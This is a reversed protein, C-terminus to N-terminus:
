QDSQANLRDGSEEEVAGLRQSEELWGRVRRDTTGRLARICEVARGPRPAKRARCRIRCLREGARNEVPGALSPPCSVEFGYVSELRCIRVFCSRGRKLDSEDLM